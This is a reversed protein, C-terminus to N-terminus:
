QCSSVPGPTRDSWAQRTNDAPLSKIRGYRPIIEPANQCCLSSCAAPVIGTQRVGEVSALSCFGAIKVKNGCCGGRWHGGLCICHVPMGGLSISTHSNRAGLWCEVVYTVQASLAGSACGDWAECLCWWREQTAVTSNNSMRPEFSGTCMSPLGYQLRKLLPCPGLKCASRM